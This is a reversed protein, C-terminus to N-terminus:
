SWMRYNKMERPKLGGKESIRFSINFAKDLETEEISFDIAAEQQKCYEFIEAHCKLEKNIKSWGVSGTDGKSRRWLM